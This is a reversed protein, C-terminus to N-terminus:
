MFRYQLRDWMERALLDAREKINERNGFSGLDVRASLNHIGSIGTLTDLFSSLSTQTVGQFSADELTNASPTSTSAKSAKTCSLSYGRATEKFHGDEM